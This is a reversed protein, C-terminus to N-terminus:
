KLAQLFGGEKNNWFNSYSSNVENIGKLLNTKIRLMESFRKTDTRYVIGKRDGGYSITMTLNDTIVIENDDYTKESYVTEIEATNISDISVTLFDVTTKTFLIDHLMEHNFIMVEFSFGEGQEDKKVQHFLDIIEFESLSKKIGQYFKFNKESPIITLFFPQLEEFLEKGTM